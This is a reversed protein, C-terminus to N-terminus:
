KLASDFDICASCPAKSSAYHDLVCEYFYAICEKQVYNHIIINRADITCTTM